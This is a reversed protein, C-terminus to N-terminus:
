AGAETTFRVSTEVRPDFPGHDAAVFEARITHSGQTLGRLDIVQVLGYTMSVLSGDLSLHIHGTDPELKTTASDVIRGGSLTMVVEVQDGTVVEDAVPREITLTASSSPRTGSPTVSAANPRLFQRPLTLGGAVILVGLVSLVWAGWTPIRPFGRGRLRSVSAWGVWLGAVVTVLAVQEDPTGAHALV